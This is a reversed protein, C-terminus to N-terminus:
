PGRVGHADLFRRIRPAAIVLTIPDSPPHPLPILEGRALDSRALVASCLGVIEGTEGLYLPAGSQGLRTEVDALLVADDRLLEALWGPLAESGPAIGGLVAPDLLRGTRVVPHPEGIPYGVVAIASEARPRGWALRAPSAPSLRRGPRRPDGEEGGELPPEVVRLLALDAGPDEAAIAVEVSHPGDADGAPERRATAFTVRIRAGSRADVRERQTRANAAVHQATLLEGHSGIYFATGFARTRAAGSADRWAVEVRGVGEEAFRPPGLADPADGCGAAIATAIGVRAARRLERRGLM